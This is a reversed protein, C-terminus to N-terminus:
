FDLPIDQAIKNKRLMKVVANRATEFEDRHAQIKAKTTRSRTAKYPTLLSSSANRLAECVIVWQAENLEVSYKRKSVSAGAPLAQTPINALHNAGIVGCVSAPLPAM